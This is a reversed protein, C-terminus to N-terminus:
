HRRSEIMLKCLEARVNEQNSLFAIRMIEKEFATVPSEYADTIDEARAMLTTIVLVYDSKDVEELSVITPYDDMYSQGIPSEWESFETGFIEELDEATVEIQYVNSGIAYVIFNDVTELFNIAPTSSAQM